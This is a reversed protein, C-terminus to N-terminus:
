NNSQKNLNIAENLQENLDPIVRDLNMFMEPSRSNNARCEFWYSKGDKFAIEFKTRLLFRPIRRFEKFDSAPYNIKKFLGKLVIKDGDVLLIGPMVASFYLIVSLFMSFLGGWFEGKSCYVGTFYQWFTVLSSVFALASVVIILWKRYIGLKSSIYVKM